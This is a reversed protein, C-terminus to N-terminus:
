LNTWDVRLWQELSEVAAAALETPHMAVRNPAGLEVVVAPMRTERLIPFAMGASGGDALRIREVIAPRILDALRRSTESEYSYGKYHMTRVLSHDPELRLGLYCDVESRNAEIAQESEEPHHLAVPKAGAAALARCVAAVGASFGGFEGVAIRREKLTPPKSAADLRERIQSVLEEGGRRPRLRDLEGLTRPGCIGDNGIGVNRQFEGLARATGEGYIGDVGGPDFGLTSLRRQLEAVDDGHLMPWRSYLVRDGLEFGAEVIASWTHPGCIGDARLGREEQFRRIAKETGSAFAGPPDDGTAVGLRRLRFQLDRVSEGSSGTSLPLGFGAAGGEPGCSPWSTAEPVSPM